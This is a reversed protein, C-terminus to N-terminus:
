KEMLPKSWQSRKILLFGRRFPQKCLHCSREMSSFRQWNPPKFQRKCKKLVQSVFVGVKGVNQPVQETIKRVQTPDIRRRSEAFCLWPLRSCQHCNRCAATRHTWLNESQDDAAWRCIQLQKLLEIAEWWRKELSSEMIFRHLSCCRLCNSYWIWQHLGGRVASTSFCCQCWPFTLPKLDRNNVGIIKAGLAQAQQFEAANHTEVLVELGLAIAEQHLIALREPKLTGRDIFCYQCGCEQRSDITKQRYYLRQM